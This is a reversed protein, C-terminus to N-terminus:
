FNLMYETVEREFDDFTYIVSFHYGAIKMSNGFVLQEATAKNYGYKMEIFFGSFEKNPVALFLDSVGATVGQRKMEAAEKKNRTGGNPVAFLHIKYLPYQYRFWRVCEKQLMGERQIGM